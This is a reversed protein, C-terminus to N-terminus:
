VKMSKIDLHSSRVVGKFSIKTHINILHKTKHRINSNNKYKTFLMTTMQLKDIHTIRSSILKSRM